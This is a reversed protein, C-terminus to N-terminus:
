SFMDMVKDLLGKKPIAQTYGSWDSFEFTYEKGELRGQNTASDASCNYGGGGPGELLRGGFFNVIVFEGSKKNADSPKVRPVAVTLEIEMTRRYLPISQAFNKEQYCLQSLNTDDISNPIVAVKVQVNQGSKWSVMKGNFTQSTENYKTPTVTFAPKDDAFHEITIPEAFPTCESGDTISRTLLSIYAGSASVNNNKIDTFFSAIFSIAMGAAGSIMAGSTSPLIVGM